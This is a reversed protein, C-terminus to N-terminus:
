SWRIWLRGECLDQAMRYLPLNFENQLYRHEKAMQKCFETHDFGLMNMDNALNIAATQERTENKM